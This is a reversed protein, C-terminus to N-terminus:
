NQKLVEIVDDKEVKRMTYAMTAWVVLLVSVISIGWYMWPVRYSFEMGFRMSRYVLWSTGASLLVGYCISRLGYILCECGMMKRFGKRTMGVSRLMAFERRRLMVNTSVTNFVNAVGILSMLVIFGTTLVRVAVMINENKETQEKLDYIGCSYLPSESNGREEELKRYVEKHDETVLSYYYRFFEEKEALKGFMSEPIFLSVSHSYYSQSGSLPFVDAEKGLTVELTNTMKGFNEDGESGEIASIDGLTLGDGEKKKLIQVTKYKQTEQDIMRFSNKYIAKLETKGIYDQPDAGVQRAYEAFQSDPLVTINCIWLIEGTDGEAFMYASAEENVEERAAAMSFVGLRYPYIGTVGETQELQKLIEEQKTDKDNGADVSIDMQSALLADNTGENMYLVYCGATVFVVISLTLSVVTSRYKRKDRQYNKSALMGELGFLKGALGTKRVREPVYRIDENARIAELPSLKKLRRAPIWVSIKVTLVAILVATLLSIWSVKLPIGGEQGFMWDALLPGIFYLTVGIGAVGSLLGLPIGTLCVFWAEYNLAKRLQKKSAGVSALLGFQGTRERMSISFANYILSISAAMILGIVIGLLGGMVLLLNQNDDVGYWRLVSRNTCVAFGDERQSALSEMDKRFEKVDWVSKMQIVMRVNDKCLNESVTEQVEEGEAQIGSSDSKKEPDGAILEYGPSEWLHSWPFYDYFGVITYTKTERQRFTEEGGWEESEEETLNPNEQSLYPDEQGLFIEEEEGTEETSIRLVRDGIGLTIQDGIQYQEEEKQNARLDRPILIERDNEPIRGDVLNENIMQWCSRSYNEVYFYPRQETDNLGEALAYGVPTMVGEAYVREDREIDEKMERSINEYLIHWNGNAKISSDVLFSHISLGFTTVAAIMAASLIVGIVTVISRSRNQIMTRRTITGFINM